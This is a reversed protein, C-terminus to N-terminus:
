PRCRAWNPRRIKVEPSVEAREPRSLGSYVLLRQRHQLRWSQRVFAPVVGECARPMRHPLEINFLPGGAGARDRRLDVFVPGAAATAEPQAFTGRLMGFCAASLQTNYDRLRSEMRRWGIKEGVGTQYISSWSSGSIQPTIRTILMHWNMYWLTSPLAHLYSSRKGTFRSAVTPVSLDGDLALTKFRPRKCQSGWATPFSPSRSKSGNNPEERLGHSM